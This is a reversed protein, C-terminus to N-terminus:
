YKRVGKKKPLEMVTPPFGNLIRWLEFWVPVEDLIIWGTAKTGPRLVNPKPWEQEKTNSIREYDPKVLVRYKNQANAAADIVVVKGAFTGYAASPWGSFQLAPYGSFQLRVERSVSVLPAFFDSVYIEVAQDNTIPAITALESGSKIIEAAGLAKLRIVQGDVPAYIKRQDVRNEFNSIQIDLKFIDSNISALKEYSQALKAEAEQIKLATEASVQSFDYEAISVGRKAIDLEAQAAEFESETKVIALEALEFDRRSSLGKDFLKKRRDYNLEATKFNQEAAKFKQESARLKDENQRINLDATPVAARQLKTLSNIQAKLTQILRQSASQKDRLAQEQGQLRELQKEDLYRPNVEELELLLEGERVQQGENVHWRSIRAEIQSHITQPRHMPSFVTVQGEGTVTQRWPLFLCIFLVAFVSLSVYALSRVIMPAQIAELSRM